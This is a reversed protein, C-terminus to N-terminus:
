RGTHKLTSTKEWGFDKGIRETAVGKFHKDLIGPSYTFAGYKMPREAFDQYKEQFKKLKLQFKKPFIKDNDYIEHSFYNAQARGYKIPSAGHPLKYNKEPMM